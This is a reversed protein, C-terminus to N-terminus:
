VKFGKLKDVLFKSDSVVNLYNTLEEEYLSLQSKLTKKQDFACVNFFEVFNDLIRSALNVLEQKLSISSEDNMGRYIDCLSYLAFCYVFVVEKLKDSDKFVFKELIEEISKQWLNVFTEAADDGREFNKVTKFMADNVNFYITLLQLTAECKHTIEEPAQQYVGRHRAEAVIVRLSNALVEVASLVISSEGETCTALVQVLALMLASTLSKKQLSTVAAKQLSSAPFVSPCKIHSRLWFTIPLHREVRVFELQCGDPMECLEQLCTPINFVHKYIDSSSVDDGHQFLKVYCLQTTWDLCHLRNSFWEYMHSLHERNNVYEGHEKVLTILFENMEKIRVKTDSDCSDEDLWRAVRDLLMFIKELPMAFFVDSDLYVKCFIISMTEMTIQKFMSDDGDDGDDNGEQEDDDTCLKSLYNEYLTASMQQAVEFLSEDTDLQTFIATFLELCRSFLPSKGASAQKGGDGEEETELQKIIISFCIDFFVNRGSEGFQLTLLSSLDRLVEATVDIVDIKNKISFELLLHLAEYPDLCAQIVLENFLKEKKGSVANLTSNTSTPKNFKNLDCVLVGTDFDLNYFDKVNNSLAVQHEFVAVKSDRPLERLLATTLLQLRGFCNSIQPKVSESLETSSMKHMIDLLLKACESNLLTHPNLELKRINQELSEVNDLCSTYMDQLLQKASSTFGNLYLEAQAAATNNEGAAATSVTECLENLVCKLTVHHQCGIFVGWVKLLHAKVNNLLDMLEPAKYQSELAEFSPVTFNSTQLNLLKLNKQLRYMEMPVIGHNPARIHSEFDCLTDVCSHITNLRYKTFNLKSQSTAKASDKLELLKILTALSDAVESSYRKQQKTILCCCICFLAVFYDNLETGSAVDTLEIAKCLEEFFCSHLDCQFLKDVFQPFIGCEFCFHLVENFTMTSPFFDVEEDFLELHVRDSTSVAVHVLLSIVKDTFDEKLVEAVFMSQLRKQVVKIAAELRTAPVAGGNLVCENKDM